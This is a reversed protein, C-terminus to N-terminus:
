PRPKDADGAASPEITEEVQKLSVTSGYKEGNSTQSQFELFKIVGGQLSGKEFVSVDLIKTGPLVIWNSAGKGTGIGSFSLGLGINEGNMNPAPREDGTHIKFHIAGRQSAVISATDILIRTTRKGPQQGQRPLSETKQVLQYRHQKSSNKDLKVEWNWKRPTIPQPNPCRSFGIIGNTEEAAAHQVCGLCAIVVAALGALYCTKMKNRENFTASSLAAKSAVRWMNHVGLM